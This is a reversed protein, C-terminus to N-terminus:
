ARLLLLKRLDCAKLLFADKLKPVRLGRKNRHLARVLPLGLLVDLPLPAAAATWRAWVAQATAVNARHADSWDAENPVPYAICELMSRLRSDTQALVSSDICVYGTAADEALLVRSLTAKPIGRLMAALPHPTDDVAVRFAVRQKELEGVVLQLMDLAMYEYEPPYGATMRGRTEKLLAQYVPARLWVEGNSGRQASLLDDSYFSAREAGFVATIDGLSHLSLRSLVSTLREYADAEPQDGTINKCIITRECGSSAGILDRYPGAFIVETTQADILTQECVRRAEELNIRGPAFTDPVGLEASQARIERILWLLSALRRLPSRPTSPAAASPDLRRRRCMAFAPWEGAASSWPMPPVMRSGDAFCQHKADVRRLELAAESAEMERKLVPSSACYAAIAEPSLTDHAEPVFESHGIPPTLTAARAIDDTFTALGKAIAADEDEEKSGTCGEVRQLIRDCAVLWKTIPGDSKSLTAQMRARIVGLYFRKRPRKVFARLDVWGAAVIEADHTCAHALEGVRTLGVVTLQAARHEKKMEDVRSWLEKPQSAPAGESGGLVQAVSPVRRFLRSTHVPRPDKVLSPRDLLDPDKFSLIQALVDAMDHVMSRLQPAPVFSQVIGNADPAGNVVGLPAAPAARPIHLM